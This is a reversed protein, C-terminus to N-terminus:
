GSGAAPACATSCSSLIGGASRGRAPCGAWRWWPSRGPPSTSCTTRDPLSYAPHSLCREALLRASEFKDLGKLVVVYPASLASDYSLDRLDEHAWADSLKRYADPHFQFVFSARSSFPESELLADRIIKVNKRIKNANAESTFDEVQDLFFTIHQINALEAFVVFVQLYKLGNRNHHWTGVEKTLFEQLADTDDGALHYLYDEILNRIDVTVSLQRFRAVVAKVIADREQGPDAKGAKVLIAAILRLLAPRPLEGASLDDLAAQDVWGDADDPAAATLDALTREFWAAIAAGLERLQHPAADARPLITGRLIM